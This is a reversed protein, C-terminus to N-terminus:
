EQGLTLPLWYKAFLEFDTAVVGSYRAFPDFDTAVVVSYRAFPDFGISASSSLELLGEEGNKLAGDDLNNLNM